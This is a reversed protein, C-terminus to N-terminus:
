AEFHHKLLRQLGRRTIESLTSPGIGRRRSLDLINIKRPYDFFGMECALWLVREQRDTLMKGKRVFEGIELVKPEVGHGELESVISRYAEFSPAIFTYVLAQKEVSGGSVLFSGHSLITKCVNCGDSDFWGSVQRSPERSNQRRFSGRPFKDSQKRSVSVLHRTLGEAYGRIDVISFQDIGRDRLMGMVKCQENVVEITVRYPAVEQRGM